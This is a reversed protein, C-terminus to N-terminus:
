VQPFYLTAHITEKQVELSDEVEKGGREDVDGEELRGILSENCASYMGPFSHASIQKDHHKGGGEHIIRQQHL